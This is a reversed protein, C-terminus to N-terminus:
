SASSVVDSAVGGCARCGADSVYRRVEVAGQGREAGGRGFVETEGAEGGREKASKLGANTRERILEREFEALAGFVHFIM